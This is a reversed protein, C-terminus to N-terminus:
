DKTEENLDNTLFFNSCAIYFLRMINQNEATGHTFSYGNSGVANVTFPCGVEVAAPRIWILM